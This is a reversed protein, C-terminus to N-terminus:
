KMMLRSELAHWRVAVEQVVDAGSVVVAIDKGNVYVHSSPVRLQELCYTATAEVQQRRQQGGAGASQREPRAAAKSALELVDSPVKLRRKVPKSRRRNSVRKPAGIRISVGTGQLFSDLMDRLHRSRLPRGHLETDVEASQKLAARLEAVERHTATRGLLMSALEVDSVDSSSSSGGSGSSSSPDSSSARLGSPLTQNSSSSSNSYSSSMNGPALNYRTPPTSPGAPAPGEDNSGSEASFASAEGEPEAGM